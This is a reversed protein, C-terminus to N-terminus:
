KIKGGSNMIIEKIEKEKWGADRFIQKIEEDTMGKARSKKVLKVSKAIISKKYKPIKNNSIYSTEGKFFNKIMITIILIIIFLMFVLALFIGWYKKFFNIIINQYPIEVRGDVGSENEKEGSCGKIEEPKNLRTTCKNKDICIRVKERGICKSWDGCSWNERCSNNNVVTGPSPSPTCSSDSGDCNEDIGNACAESAVPNIEANSDNCDTNVSFYGSSLNNGSCVNMLSGAGFGDLDSDKYGSINHWINANSDNCDIQGCGTATINYKDGDADICGQSVVCQRNENCTKGNPCIGCDGGCLDSGCEGPCYRVCEVCDNNICGSVCFIDAGWELCNNSDYDGCTQLYNGSCRKIGSPNCQNCSSICQGNATNCTQGGSCGPLCEGGCEDDGCQKGLESCTKPVCGIRYEQLVEEPNLARYWIKVEDILGYYYANYLYHGGIRNITFPWDINTSSTQYVGNVYLTIHTSDRVFAYHTWVGTPTNINNIIRDNSGAWIRIKEEFHNLSYGSIDNSFIVDANNLNPFPKEWFSWTFEDGSKFAIDNFNIYDDIGDFSLGRGIKGDVFVAGHVAGDKNGINDNANGEFSYHAYLGNSSDSKGILSALEGKGKEAGGVGFFNGFFGASALFAFLYILVVLFIGFLAIILLKIVDKKM